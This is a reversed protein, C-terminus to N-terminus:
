AYEFGQDIAKLTLEVQNSAELKKMIHSRQDEITRRSRSLHNAIESNSMGGLILKLVRKEAPTLIKSCTIDIASCEICNEERNLIASFRFWKSFGKQLKLETDVPAIQGNHKLSSIFYNYFVSDLYKESFEFNELCDSISDFGLQRAFVENCEMLKGDTLMASFLGITAHQYLEQFRKQSLSLKEEITKKHTIDRANGIVYGSRFNDKIITVHDSLHVTQGNKHTIRYEFPIKKTFSQKSLINQFIINQKGRDAPHLLNNVFAFGGEIIENPSYGTISEVSPTIYTYRLSAIDFKYLIDNSLNLIDHLNDTDINAM